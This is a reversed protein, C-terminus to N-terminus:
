ATMNEIGARAAAFHSMGKVKLNTSVVAGFGKGSLDEASCVFQGGANNVLFHIAGFSEIVFSILNQVNEENRISCSPGAVINGWSLEDPNMTVLIENMESAVTKCKDEDRSVIVVTAGLHAIEMAISRGIGTGGGTVLAVKMAFLGSRYVSQWSNSNAM